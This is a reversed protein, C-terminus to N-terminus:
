KMGFPESLTVLVLSDTVTEGAPSCTLTQGIGLVIAPQANGGGGQLAQGSCIMGGAGGGGSYYTGGNAAGITGGGGVVLFDFIFPLNYPVRRHKTTATISALTTPGFM